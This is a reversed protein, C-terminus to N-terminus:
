PIFEEGTDVGYKALYAPCSLRVSCLNECFYDIKKPKWEQEAKIKEITETLQDAVAKGDLENYEIEVLNDIPERIFLLRVTDIRISKQVGIIYCYLFMQKKYEEIKKKDMRGAKKISATKYDILVTRGTAKENVVLDPKVVVDVGDIIGDIFTERFIIDIGDRDWSFNNFFELGEEFYRNVLGKPFAPPPATIDTTFHTRFYESLEFIDLKSEFYMELTTHVLNGFQSYFNEIKPKADIYQLKFALACNNFTNASSNSFKINAIIFSYDM